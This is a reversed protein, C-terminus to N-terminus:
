SPKRRRRRCGASRRPSGNTTMPTGDSFRSAASEGSIWGNSYSPSPDAGVWGLMFTQALIEEDGMEAILREAEEEPTGQSSWFDAPFVTLSLLASILASLVRRRRAPM